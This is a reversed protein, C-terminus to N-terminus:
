CSRVYENIRGTTMFERICEMDYEEQMTEEDMHQGNTVVTYSLQSEPPSVAPKVM